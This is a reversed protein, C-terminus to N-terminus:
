ETRQANVHIVRSDWLRPEWVWPGVWTIIRPSGLYLRRPDSTSDSPIRSLTTPPGLYLWQPNSIHDGPIRPLIEPLELYLWRPLALYRRRPTPASALLPRHPPRTRPLTTTPGIYPRSFINYGTYLVSSRLPRLLALRLDAVQDLLRNVPLVSGPKVVVYWIAHQWYFVNRLVKFM